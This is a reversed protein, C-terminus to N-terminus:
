RSAERQVRGGTSGSLSEEASSSQLYRHSSIVVWTDIDNPRKYNFPVEAEASVQRANATCRGSPFQFSPFPLRFFELFSVSLHEFEGLREVDRPDASLLCM